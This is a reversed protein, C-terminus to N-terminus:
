KKQQKSCPQGQFRRRRAPNMRRNVGRASGQDGTSNLVATSLDRKTIASEQNVKLVWWLYELRVPLVLHDPRALRGLFISCQNPRQNEQLDPHVKYEQYETSDGIAKKVKSCQSTWFTSERTARKAKRDLQDQHEQRAWPERVAWGAPYDLTGRTGPAAPPGPRDPPARPGGRAGQGAAAGVGAPM